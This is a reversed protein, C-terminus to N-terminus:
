DVEEIIKYVDYVYLLALEPGHFTLYVNPSLGYATNNDPPQERFQLMLTPLPPNGFLIAHMKPMAPRETDLYPLLRLADHLVISVLYGRRCHVCHRVGHADEASACDDSYEIVDEIETPTDKGFCMVYMWSGNRQQLTFRYRM